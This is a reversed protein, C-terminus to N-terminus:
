CNASLMTHLTRKWVKYVQTINMPCFAEYLLDFILKKAAPKSVVIRADKGGIAEAAEQWKKHMALAGASPRAPKANNGGPVPTIKNATGSVKANDEEGQAIKGGLRNPPPTVFNSKDGSTKQSPSSSLTPFIPMAPAKHKSCKQAMARMHEPELYKTPLEELNPWGGFDGEQCDICTYWKTTPALNSIWISCAPLICDESSCKITAEKIIDAHPLIKKLDWIEAEEEADDGTQLEMPAAQNTKSPVCEDAQLEMMPDDAPADADKPPVQIDERKGASSTSPQVETEEETAATKSEGDDEIAEDIAAPTSDSKDDQKSKHDDDDDNHTKDSPTEEALTKPPVQDCETEAALVVDEDDGDGDGDGDDPEVGEPWGGFDKLQCDECMPWKDELDLNTSWIAVANERCGDARCGLKETMPVVREIDWVEEPEEEEIPKSVKTEKPKTTGKKKSQRGM